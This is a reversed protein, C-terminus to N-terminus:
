YLRRSDVDLPLKLSTIALGISTTVGGRFRALFAGCYPDQFLQTYFQQDDGRTSSEVWLKAWREAIPREREMREPNDARFGIGRLYSVFSELTAPDRAEMMRIIDDQDLHTGLERRLDHLASSIAKLEQGRVYDASGSPLDEAVAWIRDALEGAQGAAEDSTM